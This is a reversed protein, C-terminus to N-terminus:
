ASRRLPLVPALAPASPELEGVLEGAGLSLARDTGSLCTAESTSMLVATGKDAISRLLLLLQDRVLPDIGLTPEDIVLLRPEHALARAIGVRAAEAPDLDRFARTACEEAGVRALADRARHEADGVGAGRVIQDTVMQELITQGERSRRRILCFGIGARHAEGSKGALDIGEFRVVGDDPPTVGAAVRLLMSRGSHRPGWVAVLEGPDIGLSVERLVTLEARGRGVRKSVRELELLAM